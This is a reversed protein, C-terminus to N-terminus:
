REQSAHRLRHVRSRIADMVFATTLRHALEDDHFCSVVQIVQRLDMPKQPALSVTQSTGCPAVGPCTFLSLAVVVGRGPGDLFSTTIPRHAPSACIRPDMVGCQWNASVEKHAVAGVRVLGRLDWM